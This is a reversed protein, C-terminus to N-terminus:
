KKCGSNDLGWPTHTNCFTAGKTKANKLIAGTLDARTLDARALDAETLNAGTLNAKALDVRSLDCGVCANLANFELFNQAIKADENEVAFVPQSFVFVFSLTTLLTKLKM